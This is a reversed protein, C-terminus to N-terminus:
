DDGAERARRAAAQAALADGDTLASGAATEFLRAADDHRGAQQRLRALGLAARFHEPQFALVREYLGAANQREGAEVLCDAQAVILDLDWPADALAAAQSDCPGPAPELPEPAAGAAPAGDALVEGGAESTLLGEAYSAQASGANSGSMGPAAEALSADLRDDASPSQEVAPQAAPQADREAVTFIRPAPTTEAGGGAANAPLDAAGLRILVGGQVLEAEAGAPAGELRFGDPGVRLASFGAPGYPSIMRPAGTWDSLRVSLRGPSAEVSLASPTADLAVFVAGGPLVLVDTVDDAVAPGATLVAACATLLSRVIARM